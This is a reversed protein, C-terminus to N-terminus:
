IQNWNQNAIDSRRNTRNQMQAGKSSSMKARNSRPRSCTPPLYELRHGAQNVLDKTDARKRFTANGMVVVSKPPLKPLRDAGLWLNFLAADVNCSTLGVSLLDKGLLAGIV